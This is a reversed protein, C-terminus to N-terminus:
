AASRRRAVGLGSGGVVLAVIAVILATIALGKGNDDSSSTAAKVTTATAGHDSATAAVLHLIPTPHDPEAGSAPPVDIWSAVQGDDYTQIAPFALEDKDTPLPGVSLSFTDFQGSPIAGGSWTVTDIVDTVSGDDNTVPTTLHRTTTTVTWGPKPQPSVSALTVDKPVQVEFKVTNAGDIENPVSFTVIGYGGKTATGPITVHASAAGATLVALATVAGLVISVSRLTRM